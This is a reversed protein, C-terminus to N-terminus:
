RDKGWVAENLLPEGSQLRRCNEFALHLSREITEPTLWAIHPSLVVNPLSFLSHGAPPPETGFVDLGAGGLRGIKLATVLAEEDILEGRATNVIVTGPKMREISAANILHRTSGTLPVHLSVISAESLLDDLTRYDAEVGAIPGRAHYIVRAGLARLVPALQRAVAGFGILGVTRGAIEGSSELTEAPLTWGKGARTAADFPVIRRLVAFMLALTQEAVARTNTGPMNAVKIGRSATAARDITNLGVGIKQILRLRPAQELMKQTVPELVHLLVEADAIERTFALTDREDVVVTRLDDTSLAALRERLKPGARYHMVAKM